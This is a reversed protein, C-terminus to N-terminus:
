DAICTNCAAGRVVARMTSGATRAGRSFSLSVSLYLSLTCFAWGAASTARDKVQTGAHQVVPLTPMLPLCLPLARLWVQRLRQVVRTAHPRCVRESPTRQGALLRADARTPHPRMCTQITHSHPSSSAPARQGAVLRVNARKHPCAPTHLHPFRHPTHHTSAPGSKPAAFAEGIGNGALSAPLLGDPLVALIGGGGGAREGRGRRRGGRAEKELQISM